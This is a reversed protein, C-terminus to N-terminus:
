GGVMAMGPPAGIVSRIFSDRPVQQLDGSARGTVTGYLKYTTHLRSRADLRTSWPILYTGLWKLQLTRYRLLAAVAPHDHYHLLVAERTSPNGSKTVEIPDLGLGGRSEGSFLWRGLQQTSNYNFDGDRAFDGRRPNHENLVELQQDVHDKLIKIRSWLREQDVWMGAMEVQQVVHSAPMVLKTFLRALRPEKVLEAKLRQKLQWSYGVDYGNYIAIKKIPETLIKEPKLDVMGKYVDAGLLAQSLYGLNKPRNEDLIHAALMIDFRHEVFVGAGALQVNDHKANQGLHKFDRRELGPKLYALVKRWNRRFPSQPHDLPIVVSREGDVSIGLCVIGWSGPPDWPRGYNEVDYSVDTGSPLAELWAKVNKLGEVTSVYRTKVAVASLEGSILRSFRRFDEALVHHQGPNRLIYAPHFTAMTTARSFVPDKLDLKIGRQKTIGSKRAVAQLAANGLLLVHSPSVSRYERELYTRCAEWETREPKRNDPPRCKVVNSIYCDGPVFGAGHLLDDLLQGARGSFVKGTDAENAGPAEGLIMVKAKPSGRGMICVRATTEHLSCRTCDHDALHDLPSSFTM